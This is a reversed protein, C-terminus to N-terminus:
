GRGAKNKRGCTSIVPAVPNSGSGSEADLLQVEQPQTSHSIHRAAFASYKLAKLPEVQSQIVRFQLPHNLGPNIQRWRNSSRDQRDIPDTM